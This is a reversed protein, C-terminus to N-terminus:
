NRNSKDEYSLENNFFKSGIRNITYEIYIKSDKYVEQSFKHNTVSGDKNLTINFVGLNERGLFKPRYITATLQTADQFDKDFLKDLFRVSYKGTSIKTLEASVTNAPRLKIREIGEIIISFGNKNTRIIQPKAFKNFSSKIQVIPQEMIGDFQIEFYQKEGTISPANKITIKFDLEFAKFPETINSKEIKNVNYPVSIIKCKQATINFGLFERNRFENEVSISNYISNQIVGADRMEKLLFTFEAWSRPTGNDSARVILDRAITYALDKSDIENFNDFLVQARYSISKTIDFISYLNDNGRGEEIVVDSLKIFGLIVKNKEGYFNTIQNGIESNFVGDTVALSVVEEFQTWSKPISNNAANLVLFKGFAIGLDLKNDDNTDFKIYKVIHRGREIPTLFADYIVKFTENGRGLATDIDVLECKKVDRFFTKEVCKVEEYKKTVQFSEHIIGEGNGSLNKGEQTVTMTKSEGDLGLYNKELIEGPQHCENPNDQAFAVLTLISLIGSLLLKMTEGKKLSIM